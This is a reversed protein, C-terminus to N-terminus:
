DQDHPKDQAIAAEQCVPCVKPWVGYGYGGFQADCTPCKVYGPRVDEESVSRVPQPPQIAQIFQSDPFQMWRVINEKKIYTEDATKFDYSYEEPLATLVVRERNKTQAIFWESAYIKNPYGDIWGGGQGQMAAQRESLLSRLMSHTKAVSARHNARENGSKAYGIMECDSMLESILRDIKADTYNPETTM